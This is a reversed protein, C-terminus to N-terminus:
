KYALVGLVIRGKEGSSILSLLFLQMIEDEQGDDDEVLEEITSASEHGSAGDYMLEKTDNNVCEILDKTFEMIGQVPSRWSEMVDGRKDEDEAAHRLAEKAWATVERCRAVEQKMVGELRLEWSMVADEM